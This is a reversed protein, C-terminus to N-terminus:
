ARCSQASDEPSDFTVTEGDGSLAFGEAVFPQGPAPARLTAIPPSEEADRVLATTNDAMFSVYIISNDRCRYTRSLRIAPPLQVAPRNALAEAQPDYTNLAEPENSCAALTAFATLCAATLELPKTM